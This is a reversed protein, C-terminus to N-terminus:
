EIVRWTLLKVGNDRHYIMFVLHLYFNFLALLDTFYQQSFLSLLQDSSKLWIICM